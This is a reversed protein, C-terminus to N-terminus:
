PTVDSFSRRLTDYVQPIPLHAYQFASQPLLFISPDYLLCAPYVPVIYVPFFFSCLPFTIVSFVSYDCLFSLPLCSFFTPVYSSPRYVCYAYLVFSPVSALTLCVCFGCLHSDFWALEHSVQKEAVWEGVINHKVRKVQCNRSIGNSLAALIVCKLQTKSPGRM